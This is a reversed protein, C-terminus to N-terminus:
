PTVVWVELHGDSIASVICALTNNAFNIQQYVMSFTRSAQVGGPGIAFGLAAQYDALTKTQITM